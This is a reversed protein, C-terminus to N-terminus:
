ETPLNTNFIHIAHHVSWVIALIPPHVGAPKRGTVTKLAHIAWFWGTMTTWCLIVTHMPLRQWSAIRCYHWFRTIILHYRSDLLLLTRRLSITRVVTCFHNGILTEIKELYNWFPGCQGSTLIIKSKSKTRGLYFFTMVTLWCGTVFMKSFLM